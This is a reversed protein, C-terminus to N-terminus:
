SDLSLYNYQQYQRTKQISKKQKELVKESPYEIGDEKCFLVYKFLTSLAYIIVRFTKGNIQFPDSTYGSDIIQQKRYAILSVSGDSKQHLVKVWGLITGHQVIISHGNPITFKHQVM